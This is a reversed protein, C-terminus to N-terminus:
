EKRRKALYEMASAAALTVIADTLEDKDPEHYIGYIEKVDPIFDSCAKTGFTKVMDECDRMSRNECYRCIDM